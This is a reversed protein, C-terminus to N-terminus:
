NFISELLARRMPTKGQRYGSVGLQPLPQKQRLISMTSSEVRHYLGLRLPELREPNIANEPEVRFQGRFAGVGYCKLTTEKPAKLQKILV